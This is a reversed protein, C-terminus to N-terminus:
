PQGRSRDVLVDSLVGRYPGDISEVRQKLQEVYETDLWDPTTDYVTLEPFRSVISDKSEATVYGWIGGQGYDYLVLFCPSM